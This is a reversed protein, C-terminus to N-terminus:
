EKEGVRLVRKKKNNNLSDEINQQCVTFIEYPILSNFSLGTNNFNM